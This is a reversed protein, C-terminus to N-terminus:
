APALQLQGGQECDSSSGEGVAAGKAAAAVAPLLQWLKGQHGYGQAEPQLIEVLVEMSDALLPGPRSFVREGDVVAVHGRRVAPLRAWAGGEAGGGPASGGLRRAVGAASRLSQRLTLGCLAFILVDPAARELDQESLCVAEEVRGCVDRSGALAILEPV